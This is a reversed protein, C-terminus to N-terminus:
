ARRRRSVAVSPADLGGFPNSYPPLTEGTATRVAVAVTVLRVEYNPILDEGPPPTYNVLRIKTTKNGKTQAKCPSRLTLTKNLKTITAIARDNGNAREITNVDGHKYVDLLWANAPQDTEDSAIDIHPVVAKELFVGDRTNVCLDSISDFEDGAGSSTM